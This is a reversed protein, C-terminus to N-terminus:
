KGQGQKPKPTPKPIVPTKPPLGGGKIHKPGASKAMITEEITGVAEPERRRINSLQDCRVCFFDNLVLEVPEDM